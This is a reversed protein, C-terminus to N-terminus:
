KGFPLHDPMSHISQQDQYFEQLEQNRPFKDIFEQDSDTRGTQKELLELEELRKKLITKSFELLSLKAKGKYEEILSKIEEIEKTKEEILKEKNEPTPHLILSQFESSENEVKTMRKFKPVRSLPETKKEDKGFGLFNFM